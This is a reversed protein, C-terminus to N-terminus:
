VAAAAEALLRPLVLVSVEGEVVGELYDGFHQAEWGVYRATWAVLGTVDGDEPLALVHRLALTRDEDVVFAGLSAAANVLNVAQLLDPLVDEGVEVPLATVLQVFTPAGEVSPVPRVVVGRERGADDLGADVVLGGGDPEPASRTGADQLARALADLDLAV